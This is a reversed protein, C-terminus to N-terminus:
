FLGWNWNIIFDLDEEHVPATIKPYSTSEEAIMMRDPFLHHVAQNLDKLFAIAELNLNSGYRNPKWKKRDYDLYLMSAVADVRM